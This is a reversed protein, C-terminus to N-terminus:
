KGNYKEVSLQDPCINLLETISKNIVPHLLNPAIESLPTLVFRRNPIQPHPIQLDNTAIVEKNYFLIDIDIIRPGNKQFRERGLQKEIALLNALLAHPSLTTAIQIVQNLFPTQESLGWPATEYVSSLHRIYGAQKKISKAASELNQIRDGINGGTLLYVDNM